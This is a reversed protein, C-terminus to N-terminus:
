NKIENQNASVRWDVLTAVLMALCSLVHFAVLGDLYALDDASRQLAKPVNLVWARFVTYLAIQSFAALFFAVIGIWSKRILGVDVIVDLKLYVIDLVRWKLPAEAWAFGTQSTINLIHVLAGYAYFSAVIWFVAPAFFRLQPKQNSPFIAAM